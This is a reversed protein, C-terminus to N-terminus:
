EASGASQAPPLYAATSTQLRRARIQIEPRLSPIVLIVFLVAILSLCCAVGLTVHLRKKQTLYSCLDDYADLMSLFFVSVCLFMLYFLFASLSLYGFIKTSILYGITISAFDSIAESWIGVRRVNINKM